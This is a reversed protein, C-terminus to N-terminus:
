IASQEVPEARAVSSKGVPILHVDCGHLLECRHVESTRDTTSIPLCTLSDLGWLHLTLDTASVAKHTNGREKM